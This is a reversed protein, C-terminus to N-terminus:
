SNWFDNTIVRKAEDFSLHGNILKFGLTDEYDGDGLRTCIAAQEPTIGAMDLSYAGAATFCRARLWDEVEEPDDFGADFWEDAVEEVPRGGTVDAGYRQLVAIM